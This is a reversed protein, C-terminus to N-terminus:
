QKALLNGSGLRLTGLRLRERGPLSGPPVTACVAELVARLTGGGGGVIVAAPGSGNALFTRTCEAAQQHDAVVQLTIDARGTMREVLLHHLRDALPEGCGTGSTRNILLLARKVM